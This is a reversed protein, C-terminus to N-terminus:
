RSLCCRVGGYGLCRQGTQLRPQEPRLRRALHVPRAAVRPPGFPAGRGAVPPEGECVYLPAHELPQDEERGKEEGKREEKEEEVVMEEGEEVELAWMRGEPTSWRLSVLIM